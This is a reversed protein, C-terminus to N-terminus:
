SATATPPLFSTLLRLSYCLCAQENLRFAPFQRAESEREERNGSGVYNIEYWEFACM